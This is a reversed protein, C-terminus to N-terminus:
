WVLVYKPENPYCLCSYTLHIEGRKHAEIGSKSPLGSAYPVFRPPGPAYHFTIDIPLLEAAFFLACGIHFCRRRHHRFWLGGFLWGGVLCLLGIIRTSFFTTYALVALVLLWTLLRSSWFTTATTTNV